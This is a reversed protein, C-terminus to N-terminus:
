ALNLTTTITETAAYTEPSLLSRKLVELYSLIGELRRAPACKRLSILLQGIGHFGMNEYPNLQESYDDFGVEYKQHLLKYLRIVMSVRQKETESVEEVSQIVKRIEIDSLLLLDRVYNLDFQRLLCVMIRHANDV